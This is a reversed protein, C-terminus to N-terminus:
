LIRATTKVDSSGHVKSLFQLYRLPSLWLAIHTLIIASARLKESTSEMRTTAICILSRVHNHLQQAKDLGSREGASLM